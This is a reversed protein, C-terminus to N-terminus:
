YFIMKYEFGSEKFVQKGIVCKNCKEQLCYFHYLHLAGQELAPSNIRIKKEKLVQRYVLKIISNDSSIKLESYFKLINKKILDDKFIEAYLYVFPIIVNSIIDTERQQGLLRLKINIQKGFNYHYNWYSDTQPKFLKILQRLCNESNKYNDKFVLIINKLLDDYLLKLILQSAYSIRVTPFNQPRLRFYQWESNLMVEFNLNSKVDKYISKIKDIYNDKFKINFLLGSTGFLVAQVFINKEKDLVHSLHKKLSILDIIKGLKLFPEKNKSYGLAELFYEMFLKNWVYSNYLNKDYFSVIESLRQEMRFSKLNLRESALNFLMKKIEIAPFDNNLTYCPLKFDLSPKKIISQWIQHISHNLFKSLVVTHIQRKGKVVPLDKKGYNWLLVQLIVSNYKTDNKHGHKFWSNLDKHIEVDGTFIRGGISIKASNFDPGGDYNQNGYDLVIVDLGDTTKLNSYYINGGLWIRVIFSENINLYKNL